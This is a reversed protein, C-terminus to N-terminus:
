EQRPFSAVGGSPLSIAQGTLPVKHEKRGKMREPPVTWTDAELDIEDWQARIVENSRAATLICFELARAPIGEVARLERMFTPLEAYPLADHHKVTAIKDPKALLHQLNGKWRAPNDGSRFGASRAFDLM